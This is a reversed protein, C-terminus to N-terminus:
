CGGGTDLILSTIRENSDRQTRFSNSIGGTQHPSVSVGPKALIFLKSM